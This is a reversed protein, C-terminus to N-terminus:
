RPVLLPTATILLVFQNTTAGRMGKLEPQATRGRPAQVSREGQEMTLLHLVRGRCTQHTGLMGKGSEPQHPQRPPPHVQSAPTGASVAPDTSRLRPFLCAGQMLNGAQRSTVSCFSHAVPLAPPLIPAISSSPSPLPLRTRLRPASCCVPKNNVM